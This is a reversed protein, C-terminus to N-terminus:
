PVVRLEKVGSPLVADEEVYTIAGPMAAVVAMAEADTGREVPAAARGTLVQAQWYVKMAGVDKGLIARSFAQRCAAGEPREIVLIVGGAAWTRQRKHFIRSLEAKAITTAPNAANVVVKYQAEAAPASAAALLLVAAAGAVLRRTGDLRTTM